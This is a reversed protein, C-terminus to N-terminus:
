RLERMFILTLHMGSEGNSSGGSYSRGGNYNFHVDLVLYVVVLSVSSSGDYSVDGNYSADGHYSVVGNYSVGTCTM